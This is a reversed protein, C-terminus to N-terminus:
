RGIKKIEAGVVDKGREIEQTVSVQGDTMEDAQLGTVNTGESMVQIIHLQPGLDKLAATLEEALGSDSSLKEQLIEQLLSRLCM